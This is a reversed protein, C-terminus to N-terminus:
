STPALRRSAALALEYVGATEEAARAWSFAQARVVARARLDRALAPDDLLRRMQRAIDAVDRADAPLGADGVVEPMASNNGYIVPCGCGMAEVLPLGFGEYHSVYVLGVAASYLAALDREEVHGILRVSESRREAASMVDKAKWGHAGAIVLTVWPGGRERVVLDFAEVTAALNKRPEITSLTLLFQGPPVGYKQRTAHLRGTDSVPRFAGDCGHHVVAVAAPDLAYADVLQKRTAESVCVYRAGKRLTSKL